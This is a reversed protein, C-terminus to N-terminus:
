LSDLKTFVETGFQDELSKVDDPTLDLKSPPHYHERPITQNIDILPRIGAPGTVKQRLRRQRAEQDMRESEKRRREALEEYM